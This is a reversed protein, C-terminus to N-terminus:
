QKHNQTDYRAEFHRRHAKTQRSEYPARAEKAAKIWASAFKTALKKKETPSVGPLTVLMLIRVLPTPTLRFTCLYTKFEAMASLTGATALAPRDLFFLGPGKVPERCFWYGEPYGSGVNGSGANGDGVNGDGANKSGSNFSGPNKYGYNYDGSNDDGVNHRGANRSGVNDNGANLCGINNTGANGNGDNGGGVNESGINESGVNSNGNNRYGINKDGVNGSGVNGDGRHGYGADGEGDNALGSNRRGRERPVTDSEGFGVGTGNGFVSKAESTEVDDIHERYRYQKAMAEALLAATVAATVAHGDQIRKEATLRGDGLSVYREDLRFYHGQDVANVGCRSQWGLDPMRGNFLHKLVMCLVDYLGPGPYTPGCWIRLQDAHLPNDKLLDLAWQPRQFPNIMFLPLVRRATFFTPTGIPAFNHYRPFDAEEDDVEALVIFPAARVGPMGLDECFMAAHEFRRAFMYRNRDVVSWSVNMDVPETWEGLRIERDAFDTLKLVEGEAGTPMQSAFMYGLEYKM